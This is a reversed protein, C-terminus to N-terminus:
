FFIGRMLSPGKKVAAPILELDLVQIKQKYERELVSSREILENLRNKDDGYVEKAEKIVNLPIGYRSATEFAYSQGITGQMFEYTPKRNAEDYLAAILEVDSNEAM